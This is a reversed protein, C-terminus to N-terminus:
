ARAAKVHRQNLLVHELAQQFDAVDAAVLPNVEDAPRAAGVREFLRNVASTGRDRERHERDRNVVQHGDGVSAADHRGLGRPELRLQAVAQEDM